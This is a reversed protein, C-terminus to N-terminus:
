LEKIKTKEKQKSRGYIQQALDYVEPNIRDIKFVSYFEQEEDGDLLYEALQYALIFKKDELPIASYLLIRKSEKIFSAGLYSCPRRPEIFNCVEIGLTKAFVVLDRPEDDDKLYENVLKRNQQNM